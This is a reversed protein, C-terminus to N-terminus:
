KSKKYINKKNSDNLFYLTPEIPLEGFDKGKKNWYIKVSNVLPSEVFKKYFEIVVDKDSLIVVNAKPIKCYNLVSLLTKLYNSKGLCSAWYCSECRLENFVDSNYSVLLDFVGECLVITNMEPVIDCSKIGYFDNFFKKDRNLTFSYHRNPDSTDCNRLIIRRGRTTLFGVFKKEIMDLGFKGGSEGEGTLNNEKLFSKISLILGPIKSLDADEGLRSYLYEKKKNVIEENIENKTDDYKPCTYEIDTFYSLKYTKDKYTFDEVIIYEKPEGNLGKILKTVIGKYGCKFCNFVPTDTSIYLHGHSLDDDGKECRPCKTIIETKASNFYSVGTKSLLFELFEPKYIM